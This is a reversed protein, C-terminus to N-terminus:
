QSLISPRKNDRGYEDREFGYLDRRDGTYITEILELDDKNAMSPIIEHLEASCGFYNEIDELRFLYFMEYKDEESERCVLSGLWDPAIGLGRMGFVWKSETSEGGDSDVFVFDNGLVRYVQAALKLESSDPKTKFFLTGKYFKDRYSLM